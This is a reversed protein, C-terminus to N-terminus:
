WTYTISKLTCVNVRPWVVTTMAHYWEIHPFPLKCFFILAHLLIRGDHDTTATLGGEALIPPLTACFVPRCTRARWCSWRHLITRYCLIPVPAPLWTGTRRLAPLFLWFNYTDGDSNTPSIGYRLTSIVSDRITIFWHCSPIVWRIVPSYRLRSWIGYRYGRMPAYYARDATIALSSYWLLCCTPMLM